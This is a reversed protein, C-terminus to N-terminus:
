RRVGFPASTARADAFSGRARQLARLGANLPPLAQDRPNMNAAEGSPEHTECRPNRRAILAIPRARHLAFEIV